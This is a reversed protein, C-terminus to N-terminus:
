EQPHGHYHVELKVIKSQTELSQITNDFDIPAPGLELKRYQEGTLPEEYIEYYKFDFFYSLRCM